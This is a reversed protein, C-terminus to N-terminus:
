NSIEVLYYKCVFDDIQFEVNSLGDTSIKLKANTAEKNATLIEKLYKASFAIPEIDNKATADVAISIRNSNISSYGLIVEGKKAKFTFTFTDSDALVGKSKIFKNVFDDDLTIEADFAPLAKLDPVAPIVSPAALMYQVKTKKDSFKLAGTVEEVTIADDLVSLLSKLQSTTYIGFEGNPFEGGVVTVDGLLTKDDSIMRVSLNKDDSKVMVSEIEGGLNYRNVFGDFKSKNM